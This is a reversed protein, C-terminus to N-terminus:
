EPATGHRLLRDRAHALQPQRLEVDFAVIGDDGRAGAKGLM